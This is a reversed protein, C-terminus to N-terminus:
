EQFLYFSGYIKFFSSVLYDVATEPCDPAIASNGDHTYITCWIIIKGHVPHKVLSNGDPLALCGYQIIDIVKYLENVAALNNEIIDNGMLQRKSFYGM